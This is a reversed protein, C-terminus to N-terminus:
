KVIEEHLQRLIDVQWKRWEKIDPLKDITLEAQQNDWDKFKIVIDSTKKSYYLHSADLASFLKDRADSREFVIKKFYDRQELGPDKTMADFERRLRILRAWNEVYRSFEIAVDDATKAQKELFFRNTTLDFNYAALAIGAVLGLIATIAPPAWHQIITSAMSKTESQSSEETM